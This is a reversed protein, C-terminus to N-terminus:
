VTRSWGSPKKKCGSPDVCRFGSWVGNGGCGYGVDRFAAGSLRPITMAIFREGFNIIGDVPHVVAAFMEDPGGSLFCAALLGSAPATGM